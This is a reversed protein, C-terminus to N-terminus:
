PQKKWLGRLLIHGSGAPTELIPDINFPMKASGQASKILLVPGLDPFPLPTSSSTRYHNLALRMEKLKRVLKDVFVENMMMMTTPTTTLPLLRLPLPLRLRLSPSLSSIM